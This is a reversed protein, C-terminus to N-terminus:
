WFKKLFYRLRELFFGVLFNMGRKSINVQEQFMNQQKTRLNCFQFLEITFSNKNSGKTVQEIRLPSQSNDFFNQHFYSDVETEDLVEVPTEKYYSYLKYLCPVQLKVCM